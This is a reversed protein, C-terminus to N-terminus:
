EKVFISVLIKSLLLLTIILAIVTFYQLGFMLPMISTLVAICSLSRIATLLGKKPLFFHILSLILLIVTLVATLFPGFNAYGYPTLDFYSYYRTISAVPDAFTLVAGYPLAEFIIAAILLAVLIMKKKM